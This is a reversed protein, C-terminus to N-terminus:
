SSDYYTCCCSSIAREGILDSNRSKNKSVSFQQTVAEILVCDKLEDHRRNSKSKKGAEPDDFRVFLVGSPKTSAAQRHIKVATGNAGNIFRDSIDM